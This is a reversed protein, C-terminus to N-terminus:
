PYFVRRKSKPPVTQIHVWGKTASPHEMYVDVSELVSPTNLLWDDFDGDPDSIDIAQGTMHKSNPAANLTAGNVRPPRWGSNVKRLTTDGTAQKFQALLLNAKNVTVQANGKITENLDLPYQKERGMWYDDLTIM